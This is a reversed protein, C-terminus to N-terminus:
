RRKVEDIRWVKARPPNEGQKTTAYLRKTQSAVARSNIRACVYQANRYRWILEIPVPPRRQGFADTPMSSALGSVVKIRGRPSGGMPDRAARPKRYSAPIAM